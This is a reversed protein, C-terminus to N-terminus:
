CRQSFEGKKYNPTNEMRFKSSILSSTFNAIPFILESNNYISFDFSSDLEKQEYSVMEKRTSTLFDKEESTVSYESIFSDQEFFQEVGEIIFFISFCIIILILVPILLPSLATWLFKMISKVIKKKILKKM